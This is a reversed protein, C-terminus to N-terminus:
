VTDKLRSLGNPEDELYCEECVFVTVWSTSRYIENDGHYTNEIKATKICRDGNSKLRQCRLLINVRKPLTDSYLIKKKKMAM